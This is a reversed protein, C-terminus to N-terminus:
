KGSLSTNVNLNHRELCPGSCCQASDPVSDAVASLAIRSLASEVYNKNIVHIKPYNALCNFVFIFFWKLFIRFITTDSWFELINTFGWLSSKLSSYNYFLVTVFEKNKNLIHYWFTTFIKIMPSTVHGKLKM